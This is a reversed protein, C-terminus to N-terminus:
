SQFIRSPRRRWQLISLSTVSLMTPFGLGLLDILERLKRKLDYPGGDFGGSSQHVKPLLDLVVEGVATVSLTRQLPPQSCVIYNDVVEVAKNKTQSFTGVKM